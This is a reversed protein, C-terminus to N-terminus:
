DEIASDAENLNWDQIAFLWGCRKPNAIAIKPYVNQRRHSPSFGSAGYFEIREFSVGHWQSM